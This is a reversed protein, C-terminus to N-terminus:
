AARPRPRRTFKEPHTKRYRDRGARIACAIQYGDATLNFYPGHAVGEDPVCRYWIDVLYRRWLTNVGARRKPPITIRGTLACRELMYLLVTIEQASLRTRAGM